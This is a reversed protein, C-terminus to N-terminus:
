CFKKQEASWLKVGFKLTNFTKKGRSAGFSPMLSHLALLKINKASWVKADFYPVNLYFFPGNFFLSKIKIAMKVADFKPACFSFLGKVVGFNPTSSQLALLKVRWLETGLKPAGVHFFSRLMGFNQQQVKSCWSSSARLGGYSLM